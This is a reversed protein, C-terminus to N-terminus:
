NSHKLPAKCENNVKPFLEVPDFCSSLVAHQVLCYMASIQVEWAEICSFFFFQNETMIM